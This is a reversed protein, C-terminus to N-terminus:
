PNQEKHSKITVGECPNGMVRRAENYLVRRANAPCNVKTAANDLALLLWLAEHIGDPNTSVRKGTNRDYIVNGDPETSIYFREM